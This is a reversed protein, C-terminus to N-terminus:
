AAKKVQIKKGSPLGVSSEVTPLESGLGTNEAVEKHWEVDEKLQEADRDTVDRNAHGRWLKQLIGRFGTASVAIKSARVDRIQLKLQYGANTRTRAKGV